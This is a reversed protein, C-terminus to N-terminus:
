QAAESVSVLEERPLSIYSSVLGRNYKIGAKLEYVKGYDGIYKYYQIRDGCNYMCLNSEDLRGQIINGNDIVWYEGQKSAYYVINCDSDCQTPFKVKLQLNEPVSYFDQCIFTIEDVISYVILAGSAGLRLVKFEEKPYIYGDKSVVLDGIENRIWKPVNNPEKLKEPRTQAFSSCFNILIFFIVLSSNKM